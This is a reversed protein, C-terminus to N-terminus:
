LDGEIGARSFELALREQYQEETLKGAPLNIRVPDMIPGAAMAHLDRDGLGSIPEVDVTAGKRFRGDEVRGNGGMARGNALEPGALSVREGRIIVLAGFPIFETARGYLRKATM